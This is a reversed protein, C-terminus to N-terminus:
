TDILGHNRLASLIENVKSRCAGDTNSGIEAISSIASQQEGVVKTDNVKYHTHTIIEEQAEVTEVADLYWCAMQGTTVIPGDAYIAIPNDGAVPKGFEITYMRGTGDYTKILVRGDSETNITSWASTTSSEHYAFIGRGFWGGGSCKLCGEEFAAETDDEIIFQTGDVVTWAHYESTDQLYCNKWDLTWHSTINNFLKGDDLQIVLNTLSDGISEGFNVKYDTSATGYRGDVSLGNQWYNGHDHKQYGGIIDVLDHHHSKIDSIWDCNEELWGCLDVIDGPSVSIDIYEEVWGAVNQASAYSLHLNSDDDNRVLLRDSSNLTTTGGVDFNYLQVRGFDNVGSPSYDHVEISKQITEDEETDIVAWKLTGDVLYSEDTPYTDGADFYCMSKSKKHSNYVNYLTTLNYPDESASSSPKNNTNPDALTEITHLDWSPQDDVNPHYHHDFSSWQLEGEVGTLTHNSEESSLFYPFSHSHTEGDDGPCLNVNQLQLELYHIPSDISEDDLYENLTITKRSHFGSEGDPNTYFQTDPVFQSDSINGYHLQTFDNISVKDEYIEKITFKCITKRDIIYNRIDMSQINTYLPATNQAVNPDDTCYLVCETPILAPDYEYIIEESAANSQLMAYLYYDTDNALTIINGNHDRLNEDLISILYVDDENTEDTAECVGNANTNLEVEIGNRNWKGKQIQFTTGNYIDVKWPLESDIYESPIYQKTIGDDSQSNAVSFDTFFNNFKNASQVIRNFNNTDIHTAGVTSEKIAKAM